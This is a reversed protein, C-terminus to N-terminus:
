LLKAMYLENVYQGDILLSNSKVGEVEFGMKKYLHVAQENHEIVTLELRHLQVQKAWQVMHAFLATGVGKGRSKSHVGVAIQARHSTRSLTEAKLLLYGLIEDQHEAIFFGSTPTQNISNILKSLAAPAMNREDPAFLMFGSQEADKMVALIQSTDSENAKRVISKEGIKNM